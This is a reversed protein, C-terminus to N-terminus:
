FSMVDDLPSFSVIYELNIYVKQRNPKIGTKGSEAIYREKNSSFDKNDHVDVNALVVSDSNITELKGIYLWSSKTDVVVQKGIFPKLTDKM